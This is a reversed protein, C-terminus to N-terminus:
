FSCCLLSICPCVFPCPGIGRTSQDCVYVGCLLCVLIVRVLALPVIVNGAESYVMVALSSPRFANVCTQVVERRHMGMARKKIARERWGAREARDYNGKDLWCCSLMVMMEDTCKHIRGGITTNIQKDLLLWVVM